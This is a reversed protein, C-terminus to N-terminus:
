TSSGWCAECSDLNSCDVGNKGFCFQVYDQMRKSLEPSASDLWLQPIPDFYYFIAHARPITGWALEITEFISLGCHLCNSDRIASPSTVCVNICCPLKTFSLGLVNRLAMRLCYFSCNTTTTWCCLCCHLNNSLKWFWGSFTWVIQHGWNGMNCLGRMSCSLLTRYICDTQWCRITALCKYTLKPIATMTRLVLWHTQGCQQPLMECSKANILWIIEVLESVDNVCQSMPLCSYVTTLLYGKYRAVCVLFLWRKRMCKAEKLHM